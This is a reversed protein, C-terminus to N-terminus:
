DAFATQVAVDEPYFWRHAEGLVICTLLEVIEVLDGNSEANSTTSVLRVGSGASKKTSAM